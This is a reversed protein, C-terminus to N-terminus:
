VIVLASMLNLHIVYPGSDARPDDVWVIEVKSEDFCYDVQMNISQDSCSDWGPCRVYGSNVSSAQFRHYYVGDVLSYPNIHWFDPSNEDKTVMYEADGDM